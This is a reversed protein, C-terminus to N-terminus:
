HNLYFLRFTTRNDKREMQRGKSDLHNHLKINENPSKNIKNLAFHHHLSAITYSFVINFHRISSFGQCILFHTQSSLRTEEEVPTKDNTGKLQDESALFKM